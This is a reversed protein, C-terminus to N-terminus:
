WRIALNLSAGSSSRDGINSGLERTFVAFNMDFILLKVGAGLSLFGGSYGARLTFLSLLKLELGAHLLAWVSTSGSLAGVLDHLDVSLSPDFFYNLSGMDPHMGIGLAIDMPIVYQDATVATGSPFQVQSTLANYVTGFTNLDYKFQTGGLDRVSLGFTFWGLEAIAGLDLAIGV